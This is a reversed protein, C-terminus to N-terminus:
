IVKFKEKKVEVFSGGNQSTYMKYRTFGGGNQSVYIYKDSVVTITNSSWIATSGGGSWHKTGEWDKCYAYISVSAM